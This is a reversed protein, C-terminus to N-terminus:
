IGKIRPALYTLKEENLIFYKRDWKDSMGKKKTLWGEMRGEIYTSSISENKQHPRSFLSSFASGHRGDIMFIFMVDCM